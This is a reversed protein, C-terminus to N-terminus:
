EMNYEVEELSESTMWLCHDTNFGYKPELHILFDRFDDYHQSLAREDNTLKIKIISGNCFDLLTVYNAEM